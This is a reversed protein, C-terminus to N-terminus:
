PIRASAPATMGHINLRSNAWYVPPNSATAKMLAHKSLGAAEDMETSMMMPAVANMPQINLSARRKPM